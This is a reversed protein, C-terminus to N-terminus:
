TGVLWINMNMSKMPAPIKNWPPKERLTDKLSEKNTSTGRVNHPFTTIEAHGFEFHLESSLQPENQKFSSKLGKKNKWLKIANSWNCIAVLFVLFWFCFLFVYLFHVKYVHLSYIRQLPDTLLWSEDTFHTLLKWPEPTRLAVWQAIKFFVFLTSCKKDRM